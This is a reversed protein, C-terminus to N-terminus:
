EIKLENITGNYMIQLIFVKEDPDYYNFVQEIDLEYSPVKVAITEYPEAAILIYQWSKDATENKQEFSSMFRHMPEVKDVIKPVDVQILIGMNSTLPDRVKTIKYSPVGIKTFRKKPKRAEVINAKQEFLGMGATNTSLYAEKAARRSINMQHKKGQTHILYSGENSHITLCLKCEFTGLHNKLFYPDSKLDVTDMALKKLRDRRNLQLEEKRAMASAGKSGIRDQARQM